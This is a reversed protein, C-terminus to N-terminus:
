LIGADPGVASLPDEFATVARPIGHENSPRRVGRFRQAENTTEAHGKEAQAANSDIGSIDISCNAGTMWRVSCSVASASFHAFQTPAKRQSPQLQAQANPSRVSM